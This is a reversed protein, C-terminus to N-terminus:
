RGMLATMTGPEFYGTVKKLLELEERDPTTVTYGIDRFAFACPEFPLEANKLGEGNTAMLAKIEMEPTIVIPPPPSFEIRVYKLVLTSM